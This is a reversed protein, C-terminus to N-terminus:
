ISSEPWIAALSWIELREVKVVGQRCLLDLGLSDSRTPYVRAALYTHPNTFIELVSRDLFIHWRLKGEDDRRLPVTKNEREVLLNSSSANLELVLSEQASNYILCTQEQGDPSALLKLGFEACSQVAFVVEIELCDGQIDRLLGATDPALTVAEFRWHTRRLGKIEEVPEIQLKGEPLLSLSLPLSMVGAWGAELCASTQRNEKLWGWMLKRGDQATMMQPAYFTNGYALVAETESKFRGDEIKGVFYIPCILEGRESQVSVWLVSKGDIKFYNPCEWMSGSCLPESLADAEAMFIGAYDWNVLDASRYHLVLGGLGTKKCGIVMQWLDDEWWVFPDRFQGQAQTRLEGPPAQIVPNGPYKEWRILDDSASALCVTQPQIGTYVLTPIGQFDVACGSWVGAEDPGGPTPALALPLDKWYVLDQSVAHGWHITGHFPGNPNYQYFLHYQGKWQILGNPDNMWNKEPLFHYTPRHKDLIRPKLEGSSLLEGM